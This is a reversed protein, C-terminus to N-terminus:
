REGNMQEGGEIIGVEEYEDPEPEPDPPLDPDEIPVLEPHTIRTILERRESTFGQERERYTHLWLVNSIVVAIIGLAILAEM